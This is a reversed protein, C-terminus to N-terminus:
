WHRVLGFVLNAEEVAWFFRVRVVPWFAWFNVQGEKVLGLDVCNRSFGFNQRLRQALQLRIQHRRLRTEERSEGVLFRHQVLNVAPQSM